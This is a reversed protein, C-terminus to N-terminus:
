ENGHRLVFKSIGAGNLTATGTANLVWNNYAETTVSSTNLDPALKTTGVQDYDATNIATNSAPSSSSLSIYGNGINSTAKAYPYLSFTAPDMTDDVGISSTDFLFFARYLWYTLGAQKGTYAGNSQTPTDDASASTAASQITSWATSSGDFAAYGDVSTVKPTRTQTSPPPRTGWEARYLEKM